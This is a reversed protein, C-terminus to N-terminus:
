ECEISIEIEVTNHYLLNPFEAGFQMMSDM